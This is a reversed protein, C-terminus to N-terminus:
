IPRGKNITSTRSGAKSQKSAYVELAKRKIVKAANIDRDHSTGCNDCTWTRDSLKLNEKINNCVSCVKTSPEYVGIEEFTIGNLESKYRLQTKFSYWGVEGIKRAMRNDKMMGKIDLTEVGILTYDYENSTLKHSLKHQIDFRINKLKEQLKALRIREKHYHKSKKYNENRDRKKQLKAQM